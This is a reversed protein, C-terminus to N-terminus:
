VSKMECKPKCWFYTEGVTDVSINETCTFVAEVVTVSGVIENTVWQCLGTSAKVLLGGIQGNESESSDLRQCQSLGSMWDDISWLGISMLKLSRLRGRTGQFKLTESATIVDVISYWRRSDRRPKGNGAVAGDEVERDFWVSGAM